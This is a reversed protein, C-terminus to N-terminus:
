KNKRKSKKGTAWHILKYCIRVLYIYFLDYMTLSM